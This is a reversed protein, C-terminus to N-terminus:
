TGTRSDIETCGACYDKTFAWERCPDSETALFTKPLGPHGCAQWCCWRIEMCRDLSM